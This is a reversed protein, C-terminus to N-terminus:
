SQQKEGDPRVALSQEKDGRWLLIWCIAEFWRTITIGCKHWVKMKRFEKRQHRFWGLLRFTCGMKMQKWEIVPGKTSIIRGLPGFRFCFHIQISFLAPKTQWTIGSSKKVSKACKKMMMFTALNRVPDVIIFYMCMHSASSYIQPVTMPWFPASTDKEKEWEMMNMPLDREWQSM